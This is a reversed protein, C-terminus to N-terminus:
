GLAAYTGYLADTLNERTGARFNIKPEERPAASVFTLVRGDDRVDVITLPSSRRGAKTVYMQHVGSRAGKMLERPRLTPDRPGYRNPRVYDFREGPRPGEPSYRSQPIAISDLRAPPVPPLIEVLSEAARTADVVDIRVADAERVVRIADSGSVSVLIGATENTVTDVLLASFRQAGTALVYLADRFDPTVIGGSGVGVAVLVDLVKEEFQKATEEAFWYNNAGIVTPPAGHGEWEWVKLFALTPLFVPGRLL